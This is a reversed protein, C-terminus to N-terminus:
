EDADAKPLLLSFVREANRASVMASHTYSNPVFEYAFETQKRAEAAQAVLAQLEKRTATILVPLNEETKKPSAPQLRRAENSNVTV